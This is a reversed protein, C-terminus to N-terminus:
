FLFFKNFYLENKCTLIIPKKSNKTFFTIVSWFGEKLIVYIYDFLILSEKLVQVKM